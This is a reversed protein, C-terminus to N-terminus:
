RFRSEPDEPQTIIVRATYIPNNDADAIVVVTTGTFRGLIFLLNGSELAMDAIEPHSSILTRGAVPLHRVELKNVFAFITEVADPDVQPAAKEAEEWPLIFQQAATPLPALLAVALAPVAFRRLM